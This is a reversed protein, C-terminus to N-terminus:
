FGTITYAKILDSKDLLPWFLHVSEETMDSYEVFKNDATLVQLTLLNEKSPKHPKYDKFLGENAAVRKIQYNDKKKRPPM